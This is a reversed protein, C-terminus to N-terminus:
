EEGIGLIMRLRQQKFPLLDGARRLVYLEYRAQRDLDESYILEGRIVELALFPDAEPLIVLDVRNVELLDELEVMLCVREKATLRVGPKPMVGIDVDSDGGQQPFVSRCETETEQRFRAAIEKARSGFVYLDAVQFRQAIEAIKEILLGMPVKGPNGM